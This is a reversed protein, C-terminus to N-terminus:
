NVKVKMIFTLNQRFYNWNWEQRNPNGPWPDRIVVSEPFSSNYRISTLIVIHRGGSPNIVGVILPCNNSLDDIIKSTDIPLNSPIPYLKGSINQPVGNYSFGLGNVANIIQNENAPACILSGYVKKVLDEQTIAIGQYNLLSQICAAWCWESCHQIPKFLELNMSPIGSEYHNGLADHGILRTNAIAENQINFLYFTLLTFIFLKSIIKKM